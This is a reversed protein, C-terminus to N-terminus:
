PIAAFTPNVTTDLTGRYRRRLSTRMHRACDFLIIAGKNMAISTYIPTGRSTFTDYLAVVVPVNHVFYVDANATVKCNMTKQVFSKETPTVVTKWSGHSGTCDINNRMYLALCTPMHSMAVVCPALLPFM